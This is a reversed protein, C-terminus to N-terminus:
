AVERSLPKLMKTLAILSELNHAPLFYDCHPLAATMGKCIPKYDPSGLLPNLWVIKHVRRKLRLMQEELVETDGRDWGDSIIIVITKNNLMTGAFRSNLTSLSSGINTGGSWDHVHVAIESLAEQVGKRKLLGTIRTMRTSFVVTEVGRIENQLSHIFQILFKSYCDMSGSVDCFLVVRNKRIRRRSRALEVIDGGYRLNKRFTKRLNIIRGKTSNHRRRSLRTALKPALMAIARRFERAEEERFDSFDKRILIEDPSYSLSSVEHMQDSLEDELSQEYDERDALEYEPTTQADNSQDTADSQEMSPEPEDVAQDIQEESPFMDQDDLREFDDPSQGIRDPLPDLRAWFQEFFQNFIDIEHKSKALNIKCAYYFDMRNTLDIERISKTLDLIKGTTVDLQVRRLLRCFALVNNLLTREQLHPGTPAPREAEVM